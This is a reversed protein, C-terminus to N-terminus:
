LCAPPWSCTGPLEAPRARFIRFASFSRLSSPDNCFYWRGLFDNWIALLADAADPNQALIERYIVEAEALRGAKHDFMGSMFREELSMLGSITISFDAATHQVGLNDHHISIRM